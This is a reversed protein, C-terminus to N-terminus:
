DDIHEIQWKLGQMASSASSATHEEHRNGITATARWRTKSIHSIIVKHSVGDVTIVTEKSSFYSTM